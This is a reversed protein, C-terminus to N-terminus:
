RAVRHLRHGVQEDGQLEDRLGTQGYQGLAGVYGSCGPHAAADQFGNGHPQGPNGRVTPGDLGHSFVQWEVLGQFLGEHDFDIPAVMFVFNRVPADPDLALFCSCITGGLCIGNLTVEEADSVALARNIARPLIKEVEDEFGLDKDEEAIEGWDLLYVDHGQNAMFEVYSNGPLMDLVNTRSIGLWPVIIYPM